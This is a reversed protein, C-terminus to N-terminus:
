MDSNDESCWETDLRSGSEIRSNSSKLLNVDSILWLWWARQFDVPFIKAPLSCTWLRYVCNQSHFSIGHQSLLYQYSQGSNNMKSKQMTSRGIGHWIQSCLRCPTRGSAQPATSCFNCTENWKKFRKNLFIELICTAKILRRFDSWGFWTSLNLPSFSM